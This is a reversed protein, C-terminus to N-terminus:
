GSLDDPLRAAGTWALSHAHGPLREGRAALVAAVLAGAITYRIGGVLAPPITELAVRIGLYTTGWVVCVILWALYATRKTPHPSM